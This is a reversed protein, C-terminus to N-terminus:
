TPLRLIQLVPGVLHQSGVVLVHRAGSSSREAIRVADDVGAQEIIESSPYAKHWMPGFAANVVMRHGSPLHSEHYTTFVARHINVGRERLAEALAALLLVADRNGSEHAFLLVREADPGLHDTVAAFWEAAIKVSMINHAADLYWTCSREAVIEFRGPWSWQEIGKRIDEASLERGDAEATRRLFAECAAVALSANARQVAVQVQPLDLPLNDNAGIFQVALGHEKARHFIVDAAVPDQVTSLCAAAPKFIGSKHWAIERITPGLQDVHDLGLITIATVFPKEIFNTADYEGGHHTEIVAADVRERIFVHFALLAYLQLNRPGRDIPGLKENFPEALQPLRDYVEFFYKAFLQRDLPVSDIRIREEPVILHPSTYLGIKKPFGTRRGHARLISETFACTSGKGKTGAIHVVNLSNLVENQHIDAAALELNGPM